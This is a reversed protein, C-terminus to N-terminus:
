CNYRFSKWLLIWDFYGCRTIIFGRKQWSGDGSVTIDVTDEIGTEDCTLKKEEKAAASFFVEAVEKISEYMKNIYFDYTSQNLFSSSLDMLGCCKKCGALGLGLIRMVFIFRRNIEYSRGIKHCSQIYRPLCNECEVAIKFGLGFKACQKFEVKGNCVKEKGNECIINSCKVFTSLTSFFSFFNLVVYQLTADEPVYKKEILKLKKASTSSFSADDIEATKPNFSQKRKKPRDKRKGSDKRQIRSIKNM